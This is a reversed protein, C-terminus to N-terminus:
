DYTARFRFKLFLLIDFYKVLATVLIFGKRENTFLAM